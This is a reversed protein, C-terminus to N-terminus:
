RKYTNNLHAVARRSLRWKVVGRVSRSTTFLRDVLDPPVEALLAQLARTSQRVWGGNMSWLLENHNKRLAKIAAADEAAYGAETAAILRNLDAVKRAAEAKAAGTAMVVGALDNTKADAEATARELEIAHRSQVKAMEAAHRAHIAALEENRKEHVPKLILRRATTLTSNAKNYADWAAHEASQAARHAARLDELTTSM